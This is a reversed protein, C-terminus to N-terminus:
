RPVPMCTFIGKLELTPEDLPMLVPLWGAFGEVDEGLPPPPPPPPPEGLPGAHPMFM